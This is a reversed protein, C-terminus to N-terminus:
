LAGVVSGHHTPSGYADEVSTSLTFTTTMPTAIPKAQDVHTQYYSM